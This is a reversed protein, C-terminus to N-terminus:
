LKLVRKSHFIRLVTVQEEPYIRCFFGYNGEILERITDKKAESVRRGSRPHNGLQITRNVVKESFIVAYNPSDKAIFEHIEYLDNKADIAWKVKVM